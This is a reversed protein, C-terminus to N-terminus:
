KQESSETPTKTSDETTKGCGTLVIVLFVVLGVIIKRMKM